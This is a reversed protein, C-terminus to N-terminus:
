QLFAAAGGVEKNAHSTLGGRSDTTCDAISLSTVQYDLGGNCKNM